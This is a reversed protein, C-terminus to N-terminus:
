IINTGLRILIQLYYIQDQWNCVISRKLVLIANMMVVMMTKFERHPGQCEESLKREEYGCEELEESWPGQRM